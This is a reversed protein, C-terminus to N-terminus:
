ILAIITKTSSSGDVALVLLSVHSKLVANYQIFLTHAHTRAHTRAHVHLGVSKVTFM